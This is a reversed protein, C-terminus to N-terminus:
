AVWDPYALDREAIVTVPEPWTVDLAPDNWRLGRAGAAVYARDIMYLVEAGDSLAQFGHAFGAPIYLAHRNEASLDAAYAQLYTTSEPRLDVIVDHIAGATCRVLKTEAHPDISFHLGRVTGRRANYSISSQVFAGILGQAAFDEMCATRAFFGRADAQPEPSVRFAGALPLAEFRM